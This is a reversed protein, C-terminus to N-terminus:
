QQLNSSARRSKRSISRMFGRSASTLGTVRSWLSQQCNPYSGAFCRWISPSNSGDLHLQFINPSTSLLLTKSRLTQIGTLAVLSSGLRSSAQLMSPCTNTLLPCANQMSYIRHNRVEPKWSRSREPLKCCPSLAADLLLCAKSTLLLHRLLLSPQLLLLRLFRKDQASSTMCETGSSVSVLRFSVVITSGHANECRWNSYDSENTAPVEKLGSLNFIRIILNSCASARSYISAFSAAALILVFSLPM